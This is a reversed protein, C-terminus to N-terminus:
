GKLELEMQIAQFTRHQKYGKNIKRMLTLLVLQWYPPKCLDSVIVNGEQKFFVEKSDVRNILVKVDNHKQEFIELFRTLAQENLESLYLWYEETPM